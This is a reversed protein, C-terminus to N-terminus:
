NIYIASLPILASMICWWSGNSPIVLEPCRIVALFHSLIYTGILIVGYICGNKGMTLIPAIIAICFIFWVYASNQTNTYEWSLGYQDNNCPKSCQNDKKKDFIKPLSTTVYILFIIYVWSPLKGDMFYYAIALSVVPQLINHWFAIATARQNQGTCEQDAWMLYELYQMCGIYIFFISIWRDNPRNRKYLYLCVLTCTIFAAISVEKNVCM